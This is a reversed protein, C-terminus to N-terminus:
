FLLTRLRRAAASLARLPGADREGSEAQRGIQVLLVDARRADESSADADQQLPGVAEANKQARRRRSVVFAANQTEGM